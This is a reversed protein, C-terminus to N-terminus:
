SLLNKYCAAMHRQAWGFVVKSMWPRHGGEHGLEWFSGYLMLCLIAAVAHDVAADLKEEEGALDNFDEENRNSGYRSPNTLFASKAAGKREDFDGGTPTEIYLGESMAVTDNDLPGSGALSRQLAERLKKTARETREQTREKLQVRVQPIRNRVIVVHSM